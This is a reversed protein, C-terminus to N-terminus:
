IGKQHTHTHGKGLILHHVTRFNCPHTHFPYALRFLFQQDHSVLDDVMLLHTHNHFAAHISLLLNSLTFCSELDPM